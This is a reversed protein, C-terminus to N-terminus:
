RGHRWLAPEIWADLVARDPTLGARELAAELTRYDRRAVAAADVEVAGGAVLDDMIRHHAALSTANPRYHGGARGSAAVAADSRRVVVWVPRCERWLPAYIAAGKWLWPGDTYGDARLVAEVRSRWAPVPAPPEGRHVRHGCTRGILDAIGVHEFYGKPNGADAPRCTGTWVGHRAFAGAVMSSGSRPLSVILVPDRM